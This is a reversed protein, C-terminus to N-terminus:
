FSIRGGNVKLLGLLCRILTTKGAGNLGLLGFVEGENIQLSIDELVVAQGFRKKINELSILFATM